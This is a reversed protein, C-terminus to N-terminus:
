HPGAGVRRHAGDVAADRGDGEGDVRRADGAGQAGSGAVLGSVSDAFAWGVFTECCFERGVKDRLEEENSLSKKHTEQWAQISADKEALQQLLRTEESELVEVKEMLTKEYEFLKKRAKAEKDLLQELQAVQKRLEAIEANDVAATAAAAAVSSSASANKANDAAISALAADRAATENATMTLRTERKKALRDNLRKMAANDVVPKSGVVTTKGRGAGTAGAAPPPLARGTAAAAGSGEKRPSRPSAVPSSIPSKATGGAPKPPPRGAVQTLRTSKAIKTGAKTTLTGAAAGTSRSASTAAVANAIASDTDSDDLLSVNASNTPTPRRMADQLGASGVSRSPLPGRVSSKPNAPLASRPPGPSNPVAASLGAGRGVAGRPSVAGRGAGASPTAVRPSTKAFTGSTPRGPMPKRELTPYADEDYPHLVYRIPQVDMEFDREMDEVTKM